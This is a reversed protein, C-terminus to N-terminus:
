MNIKLIMEDKNRKNLMHQTWIWVINHYCCSGLHQGGISKNDVYFYTSVILYYSLITNKIKMLITFSKTKCINTKMQQIITINLFDLCTKAPRTLVSSVLLTILLWLTFTMWCLSSFVDLDEFCLM